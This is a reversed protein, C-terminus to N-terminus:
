TNRELIEKPYSYEEREKKKKKSHLNTLLLKAVWKQFIVGGLSELYTTGSGKWGLIHPTLTLYNGRV